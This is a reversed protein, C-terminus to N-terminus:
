FLSPQNDTEAKRDCHCWTSGWVDATTGHTVTFGAAICEAAFEANAKHRDPEDASCGIMGGCVTCYALYAPKAAIDPHKAIKAALEDPTM